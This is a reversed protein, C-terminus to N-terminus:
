YKKGNKETHMSADDCALKYVSVGEQAKFTKDAVTGREDKNLIFHFQDSAEIYTEEYKEKKEKKSQFWKSPNLKNM